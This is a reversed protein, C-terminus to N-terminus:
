SSKACSIITTFSSILRQYFQAVLSFISNKMIFNEKINQYSLFIELDFKSFKAPWKKSSISTFFKYGFGLFFFLACSVKKGKHKIGPYKLFYDM